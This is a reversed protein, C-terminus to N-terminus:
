KGDGVLELVDRLDIRKEEERVGWSLSVDDMRFM